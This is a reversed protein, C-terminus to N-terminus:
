QVNATAGLAALLAPFYVGAAQYAGYDKSTMLKEQAVEGLGAAGIGGKTVTNSRSDGGPVGTTTTTSTTPNAEEAARAAAVGGRLEAGRTRRGLGGLTQQAAGEVIAKLDAGSSRRTSTSTQTVTQSGGSGENQAAMAELYQWPTVDRGNSVARASLQAYDAWATMVQPVSADEPIVGARVMLGRTYEWQKDNTDYAKQLYDMAESGSVYAPGGESGGIHGGTWPLEPTTAVWGAHPVNFGQTALGRGGLYVRDDAALSPYPSSSTTSGGSSVSALIMQQVEPPLGALM